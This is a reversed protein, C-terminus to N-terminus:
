IKIRYGNTISKIKRYNYGKCRRQIKHFYIKRVVPMFMKKLLVSNNKAIRNM